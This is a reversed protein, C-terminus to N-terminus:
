NQPMSHHGIWGHHRHQGRARDLSSEGSQKFLLEALSSVDDFLLVYTKHGLLRSKAEYYEEAQKSVFDYKSLKSKLM